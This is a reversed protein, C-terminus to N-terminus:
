LQAGVAGSYFRGHLSRSAAEAAQPTTFKLYVNGKSNPDVHCHVVTGFKSSESSVDEQLEAQWNPEAKDADTFVAAVPVPSM